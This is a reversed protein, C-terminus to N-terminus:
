LTNAYMQWFFADGLVVRLLEQSLLSALLSPPPLLLPPATQRKCGGTVATSRVFHVLGTWEENETM